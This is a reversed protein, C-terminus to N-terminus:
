DDNNRKEVRAGCYPCYNPQRDLGYVGVDHGCSLWFRKKPDDTMLGDTATATIRCTREARTNWADIAAEKQEEDWVGDAVFEGSSPNVACGDNFCGVFFGAESPYLRAEGGCFPCPKLQPVGNANETGSIENDAM